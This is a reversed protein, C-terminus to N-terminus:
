RAPSPEDRTTHSKDEVILRVPTIFNSAGISTHDTM